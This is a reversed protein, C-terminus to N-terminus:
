LRPDMRTIVRLAKPAVHPLLRAGRAEPTVPVVARDDAVARLIV